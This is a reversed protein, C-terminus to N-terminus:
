VFDSILQLRPTPQKPMFSTSPRAVKEHAQAVRVKPSVPVIGDVSFRTSSQLRVSQSPQTVFLPAPVTQKVPTAPAYVPQSKIKPATKAIVRSEQKTRKRNAKANIIVIGLASVFYLGIVPAAMLFQNFPDPTPTIIAAAIFSFLIVYRTAGILGKPTLPKIKNVFGLVIPLQFLAAFGVIYTIVFNFYEDVGLWSQIGTGASFGTLFHLAAPLSLFYAFAIGAAALLVSAIFYYVTSNRVKKSIVPRFFGLFQHIIVPLAVIFGFAVCLKIVFSLAGSPTTYYLTQNIPQQLLSLLKEHLVYGLISGAIIAGVSWKLRSRLENIHQALTAQNQAKM